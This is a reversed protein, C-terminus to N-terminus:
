GIESDDDPRLRREVAEVRIDCSKSDTVTALDPVYSCIPKPPQGNGVVSCDERKVLCCYGFEADIAALMQLRHYLPANCAVIASVLAYYPMPPHGRVEVVPSQQAEGALTLFRSAWNVSAASGVTASQHDDHSMRHPLVLTSDVTQPNWKVTHYNPEPIHYPVFM